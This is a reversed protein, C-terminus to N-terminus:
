HVPVREFSGPGRWSETKCQFVIRNPGEFHAIAEYELGQGDSLWVRFADLGFMEIRFKRDAVLYASKSKVRDGVVQIFLTERTLADLLAGNLPQVPKYSSLKWTGAIADKISNQAQEDASPGVSNAPMCGILALCLVWPKM